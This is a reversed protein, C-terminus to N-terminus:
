HEHGIPEGPYEKEGAEVRVDLWNEMPILPCEYAENYACTPNYALNFDLIWTGDATRHHDPELDIYRGAGYTKEGNTEDRFPVWLRDEGSAPEYAQLTVSEGDIEFDFEGRRVYEQSGDATTEVTIQEKEDHESLSREYRYDPDIEFYELGAFDAHQPFPSRPHEAFYTKKEERQQRIREVYEEDTM